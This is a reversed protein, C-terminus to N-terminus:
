AKSARRLGVARLLRERQEELRRGLRKIEQLERSSLDREMFKCVYTTCGLPRLDPPFSCGGEVLFDCPADKSDVPLGLLLAEAHAARDQAPSAGPLDCGLSEALLVDAEDVRSPKVCCPQPCAPCHSETFPQFLARIARQTRRYEHLPNPVPDESVM